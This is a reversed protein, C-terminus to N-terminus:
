AARGSEALARPNRDLVARVLLAGGFGVVTAVVSAWITWHDARGAFGDDRFERTTTAPGGGGWVHTMMQIGQAAVFGGLVIRQILFGLNM